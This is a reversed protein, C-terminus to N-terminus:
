YEINEIRITFSGKYIGDEYKKDKIDKIIHWYPILAYYTQEIKKNEYKINNHITQHWLDGNNNIMIPIKNIKQTGIKENEIFVSSPFTVTAQSNGNERANLNTIVIKFKEKANTNDPLLDLRGFNINNSVEVTFSSTEKITGSMEINVKDKESNVESCFAIIKFFSFIIVVIKKM